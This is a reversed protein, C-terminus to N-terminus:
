RTLMLGDIVSNIEPSDLKEEIGEIASLRDTIVRQERDIRLAETYPLSTFTIMSYLDKFKEPHRQNIRREIKKRLLFSHTGVLDRLEGFHEVCLDAIADTNPKREREYEAFITTWDEGYLEMCRSLVACDEFGANAGQGYSPYIAHAADGILTVKDQFSWPSCKITVMSNPPHTFFDALLNPMLPLADPFSAAFFNLVDSETKLSAYSPEGEFPIHLSCTFSGDFNPFGILMYDGRPWIHLVNKESAWGGAVAAPVMLEKYGQVWYQQAYNFRTTKQLRHRVASHAGDSGFIRQARVETISGTQTNQLKISPSNLDIALCKENFHFNIEHQREAFDLLTKNLDNRSISYIAEQENGYPQFTRDGNVDHMMRGYVPVSIDRVADGVGVSDLVKLGRDCLTLNISRDRAFDSKRVDPRLEYVDVGYGRRALLVSFLAGVLGAGVVVMRKM